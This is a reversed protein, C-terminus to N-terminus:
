YIHAHFPAMNKAGLISDNKFDLRSVANKFDARQTGGCM